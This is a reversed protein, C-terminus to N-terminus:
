WGRTPFRWTPQNWIFGRIGEQKRYALHNRFRKGHYVSHPTSSWPKAPMAYLRALTGDYWDQFFMDWMWEELAWDGCEVELCSRSLTLAMVAKLPYQRAEADPVSTVTIYGPRYIAYTFINESLDSEAPDVAIDGDPFLESPDLTGVSSQVVGVGVTSPVPLNQHTVGMMRVVNTNAPIGLPYEYHDEVLTIDSNYNWSSTRRFFEDMVNFMELEILPDTAGPVHVRLSQLLRENPACTTM